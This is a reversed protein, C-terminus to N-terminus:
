FKYSLIAAFRHSDDSNKHQIYSYNLKFNVNKWPWYNVGITYYTADNEVEMDKVFKEYRIVPMLKQPNDENGFHIWYGAVAYYGNSNFLNETYLDENIVNQDQVAKGTEGGIYEARFLFSNADYQAGFSYRNRTLDINNFHKGYYYSGTLTMGKIWPHFELRGVVDKRNNNDVVNIGNGNFIGISYGILSFDQDELKFLSGTAMVGIDRGQKGVGSVDDYGSLAKVTEGYDFIELNVPNIPSELTFPTKFQGVQVAFEPCAKIKIYADVLIPSSVWDGQIKYSVHKGLNGDVSMRVRRMRLTNSEVNMDKDANLQYLGQVFGSIRPMNTLAENQAKNKPSSKEQADLQFSSAIMLIGIFLATKKIM